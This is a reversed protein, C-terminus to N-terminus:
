GARAGDDSGCPLRPPGGAAGGAAGEACCPSSTTSASPAPHRRAAHVTPPQVSMSRLEQVGVPVSSPSQPKTSRDPSIWALVEDAHDSRWLYRRSSGKLSVAVAPGGSFLFAREAGAIRYGVGGVQVPHVHEVSISAIASLPLRRRVIPELGLVLTDDTIRLHMRISILLLGVFTCVAADL